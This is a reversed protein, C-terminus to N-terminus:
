RWVCARSYTTSVSRPRRRIRRSRMTSTSTTLRSWCIQWSRIATRLLFMWFNPMMKSIITRRWSIELIIKIVRRRTKRRMMRPHLVRTRTQSIKISSSIMRRRGELFRVLIAKVFCRAIGSLSKATFVPWKAMIFRMRTSILSRNCRVFSCIASACTACNSCNRPYVSSRPRNSRQSPRPTTTTIQRSRSIMWTKSTTPSNRSPVTRPYVTMLNKTTTKSAWRVWITIRIRGTRSGQWRRERRCAMSTMTKCRTRIAILLMIWRITRMMTATLM